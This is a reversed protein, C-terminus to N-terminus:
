RVTYLVFAEGTPVDWLVRTTIRQGNVERVWQRFAPALMKPVPSWATGGFRALDGFAQRVVDPWPDNAARAEEFQPDISFPEGVLNGLTHADATFRMLVTRKGAPNLMNADVALDRICTSAEARFAERFLHDGDVSLGASFAFPVAVISLLQAVRVHKWDSWPGSQWIRRLGAVALGAMTAAAVPTMFLDRSTLAVGVASAVVVVIILKHRVIGQAYRSLLQM